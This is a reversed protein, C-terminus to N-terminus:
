LLTSSCVLLVDIITGYGKMKWNVKQDGDCDIYGDGDRIAVDDWSDGSDGSLTLMEFYHLFKNKERLIESINKFDTEFSSIFM